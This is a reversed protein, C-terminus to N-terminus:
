IMAFSRRTGRKSRQTEAAEPCLAESIGICDFSEL